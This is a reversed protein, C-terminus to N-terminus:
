VKITKPESIIMWDDLGNFGRRKAMVYGDQRLEFLRAGFRWGVSDHLRKANVWRRKKFLFLIKEKHTQEM